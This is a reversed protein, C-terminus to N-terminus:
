KSLRRRAVGFLGLLGFGLLVLTGPEPVRVLYDQSCEGYYDSTDPSVLLEFGAANANFSAENNYAYNAWTDAQTMDPGSLGSTVYFVGPNAELPNVTSVTGGSLQEFLVEWVAIQADAANISGYNAVIYAAENYAAVNPVPIMTYNDHWGPYISAYDVCYAQYTQYNSHSPGFKVTYPGDQTSVTGNPDHITISAGGSVYELSDAQAMGAMVFIMCVVLLLVKKMKMVGGQGEVNTKNASDSHM